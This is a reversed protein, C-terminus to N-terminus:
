ANAGSFAEVPVGARERVMTAIREVEAGSLPTVSDEAPRRAVTYIQVRDILGGKRRIENIRECYAAIEGASPAVGDVRMFLSQLVLPRIRAADCLNALIRPFPISTRDIQHYYADTGADLKAWIEGQNQDLIALAKRVSARHFMSANTIMILKVASLGRALKVGAVAAVIQDINPYTTPEGDGSFAIDNLRRLPAPTGAFREDLYLAGSQVLELTEDLEALLRETEVFDTFGTTKRDVQCYICDFNCVKDPNLNIGVSIGRSRRSVVPYVFRNEHFLRSHETYLPLLNAGEASTSM